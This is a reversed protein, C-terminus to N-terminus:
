RPSPPDAGDAIAKGSNVIGEKEKDEHRLLREKQMTSKQSPSDIQLRNM